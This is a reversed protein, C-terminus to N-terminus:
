EFGINYHAQRIIENRDKENSKDSVGVTVFGGVNASKLAVLADEFVLCNNPQVGLKEAALLYIDPSSKPRSVENLGVICDFYKDLNNTKLFLKCSSPDSATAVALKVNNEFLSQVVRKLESKVVFVKEYYYDIWGKTLKYLEEFPIDTNYQQCVTQIRKAFPLHNTKMLFENDFPLGLYDFMKHYMENWAWMSDTLTGDMDFIAGHIEKQLASQLNFKM